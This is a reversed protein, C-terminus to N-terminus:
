ARNKEVWKQAKTEKKTPVEPNIPALKRNEDPELGLKGAARVANQWSRQKTKTWALLTKEDTEEKRLKELTGRIELYDAHADCYYALLNGDIEVLKGANFLAKSVAKWVKKAEGTLWKPTKPMKANQESVNGPLDGRWSGRLKLVNKPTPKPGRKM